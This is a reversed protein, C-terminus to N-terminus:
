APRLLILYRTLRITRVPLTETIANLVGDPNRIDFIGSVRLDLLSRDTIRITGSRYRNVDAIVRRLPQDEFILKGWLWGTEAALTETQIDSLRGERYSVSEGAEIRTHAAGREPVVSVASEQVAITVYEDTLHVVFQTGLATTSGEGADVTFPRQSDKAVTFFARGRQLTVWRLSSSYDVSLASDADLNVVSGDALTIMKVESIGTYHDSALIDPLGNWAIIGGAIGLTAGGLFLRRNVFGRPAYQIAQVLRPDRIRDADAWVDALIKYEAGHLPDAALWAALEQQDDATADGSNMRVFWALATDRAIQRITSNSSQTM